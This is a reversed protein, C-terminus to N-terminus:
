DSIHYIVWECRVHIHKGNNNILGHSIVHVNNAQRSCSTGRCPNLSYFTVVVGFSHKPLTPHYAQIKIYCTCQNIISTNNPPGEQLNLPPEVDCPGGPFFALSYACSSVIGFCLVHHRRSAQNQCLVLRSASVVHTHRWLIIYM